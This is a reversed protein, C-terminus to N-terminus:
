IIKTIKEQEPLLTGILIAAGLLAIDKLLNTMILIAVFKIPIEEPDNGILLQPIHITIIFLLLLIALLYCSVRIFKNAMISISAAILAIGVLLNTFPGVVPIFTTYLESLLRHNVFQNVGFVGFPLAFIIRAFHTIRKM